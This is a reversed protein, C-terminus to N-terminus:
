SLPDCRYSHVPRYAASLFYCCTTHMVAKIITYNKYYIRLKCIHGHAAYYLRGPRLNSVCPVFPNSLVSHKSRFPAFITMLLVLREIQWTFTLPKFILHHSSLAGKGPISRGPARGSNKTPPPASGSAIYLKYKTKVVPSYFDHLSLQLM